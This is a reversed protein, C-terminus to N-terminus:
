NWPAYRVTTNKNYTLLLNTLAAGEDGIWLIAVDEMTADKPLSWKLGGTSEALQSTEAREQKLSTIEVNQGLAADSSSCTSCGSSALSGNCGRPTCAGQSCGAAGACSKPSRLPEMERSPVEAFVVAGSGGDRSAEVERKIDEIAHAYQLGFLVLLPRSQSSSFSLIEQSCHHTDIRGRGFVFFVPLRSTQSLCAHGYHIVCQADVHAAAVEDVCCSGYTTDAMVYLNIGHRRESLASRLLSTVEVSTELLEDPFQLAVRTFGHDLIYAATALVDYHEMSSLGIGGRGKLV